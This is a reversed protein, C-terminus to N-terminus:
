HGLRAADSWGGRVQPPTAYAVAERKTEFTQSRLVRGRGMGPILVILTGDENESEITGKGLYRLQSAFYYQKTTTM